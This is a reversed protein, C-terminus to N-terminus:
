GAAESGSRVARARGLDPLVQYCGQLLHIHVYWGLDREALNLGSISEFAGYLVAYIGQVLHM